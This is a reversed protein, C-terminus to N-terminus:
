YAHHDNNDGLSRTTPGRVNMAMFIASFFPPGMRDGSIAKSTKSKSEEAGGTPTSITPDFTPAGHYGSCERPPTSNSIEMWLFFWRHYMYVQLLLYIYNCIM